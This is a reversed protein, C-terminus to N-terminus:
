AKSIHLISFRYFTSYLFSSGILWPLIFLRGYMAERERLSLKKRGIVRNMNLKNLSFKKM